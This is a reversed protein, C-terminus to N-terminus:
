DEEHKSLLATVYMYGYSSQPSGKIVVRYYTGDHFTLLDDSIVEDSGSKSQWYGGAWNRAHTYWVDLHPFIIAEVLEKPGFADQRDYVVGKSGEMVEAYILRAGYGAITNEDPVLRHHGYALKHATADTM